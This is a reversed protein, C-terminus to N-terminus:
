VTMSKINSFIVRDDQKATVLVRLSFGDKSDTQVMDHKRVFCTFNMSRGPQLVVVIPELVDDLIRAVPELDEDIYSVQAELVDGNAIIDSLTIGVEVFSDNRIALSFGCRNMRGYVDGGRLNTGASDLPVSSMTVAIDEPRANRVRDNWKAVNEEYTGQTEELSKKDALIEDKLPILRNNVISEYMECTCCAKCKVNMRLYGTKLSYKMPILDYCTDNFLRTHGDASLLGPTKYVVADSCDCPLRGAGAGPVANLTVRGSSGGEYLEAVASGEELLMNYGPVLRIDGSVIKDPGLALAELRTCRRTSWKTPKREGGYVHFSSVGPTQRGLCRDSLCVVDGSVDLEPDSAAADAFEQIGDSSMVFTYWCWSTKDSIVSFRDRAVSCTLNAPEGHGSADILSFSLTQGSVSLGTVRPASNSYPSSLQVMADVFCGFVTIATADDASLVSDDAFPYRTKRNGTLYEQDRAM